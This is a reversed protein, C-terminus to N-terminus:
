RDVSVVQHQQEDSLSDLLELLAKEGLKVLRYGTGLVRESLQDQPKVLLLAKELRALLTGHKQKLAREAKERLQELPHLSKGAGTQAAGELTPDIEAIEKKIRAFVEEIERRASAFLEEARGENQEHVLERALVHQEETLLREISIGSKEVARAAREDLLTVSMRPFLVPSTVELERYFPAIQAQYDLEGPGAVYAITPLVFDQYLPRLAAKPSIRESADRAVRLLAEKEFRETKGSPHRVEGEYTLSARVHDEGTLYFLYADPTPSLIASWSNARLESSRTELIEGLRRGGAIVKEWLQAAMRKLEPEMGEVILLGRSGLTRALLRGMGDSLTTQSYAERLLAVGDENVEGSAEALQAIHRDANVAYRGVEYGSIEEPPEFRLTQLEGNRDFFHADRVEELDHDEGELWFLPLVPRALEKELRAALRTAHYAKLFTYFPGGLYGVQQGTVVMVAKGERLTSLRALTTEPVGYRKGGQELLDALERWPREQRLTEEAAERCASVSMPERLYLDGSSEGATVARWSRSFGPLNTFPIHQITEIIERM